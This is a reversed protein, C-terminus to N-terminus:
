FTQAVCWLCGGLLARLSTGAAAAAPHPPADAIEWAFLVGAATVIPLPRDDPATLVVMALAVGFWIAAVTAVHLWRDTALRTEQEHTELSALAALVVQDTTLTVGTRMDMLADRAGAHNVELWARRFDAPLRPLHRELVRDLEQLPAKDLNRPVDAEERLALQLRRLAMKSARVSM